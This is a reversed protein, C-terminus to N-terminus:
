SATHFLHPLFFLSIGDPYVVFVLNHREFTYLPKLLQMKGGLLLFERECNLFAGGAISDLLDLPTIDVSSHFSIKLLFFSFGTLTLLFAYALWLGASQM